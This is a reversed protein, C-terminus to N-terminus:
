LGGMQIDGEWDVALGDARKPPKPPPTSVSDSGKVLQGKQVERQPSKLRPASATRGGSATFGNRPQTSDAMTFQQCIPAPHHSHCTIALSHPRCTRILHVLTPPKHNALSVSPSPHTHARRHVLQLQHSRYIKTPTCSFTRPSWSALSSKLYGDLCNGFLIPL